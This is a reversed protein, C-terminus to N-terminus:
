KPNRNATTLKENVTKKAASLAVGLGYTKGIKADSMQEKHAQEFKALHTTRRVVKVEKSKQKKRKIEKKKNRLLLSSAFKTDM